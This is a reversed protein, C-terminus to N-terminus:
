LFDDVLQYCLTIKHLKFYKLLDVSDIANNMEIKICVKLLFSYFTGMSVNLM